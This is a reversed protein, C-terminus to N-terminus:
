EGQAIPDIIWYIVVSPDDTHFQVLLPEAQAVQQIEPEPKAAPPIPAPAAARRVTQPETFPPPLVTPPLYPTGVRPIDIAIQGTPLAEDRPISIMLALLAAAAIAVAWRWALRRAPRVPLVEDRLDALAASNLRVEDALARCDECQAIHTLADRTLEADTDFIQLQCESCTM